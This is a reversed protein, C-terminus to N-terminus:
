YVMIYEFEKTYGKLINILKVCLAEIPFMGYRVLYTTNIFTINKYTINIIYEKSFKHFIVYKSINM